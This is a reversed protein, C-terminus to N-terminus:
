RALCPLDKKIQPIQDLSTEPSDVWWWIHETPYRGDAGKAESSEVTDLRTDPPDFRLKVSVGTRSSGYVLTKSISDQIAQQPTGCLRILSDSSLNLLVDREYKAADIAAQMLKRQARDPEETLKCSLAPNGAGTKYCDWLSYDSPSSSFTTIYTEAEGINPHREIFGRHRELFHVISVSLDTLVAQRSLPKKEKDVWKDFAYGDFKRTPAPICYVNEEAYWCELHQGVSWSFNDWFGFSDDSWKAALVRVTKRTSCGSCLIALAVMLLSAATRNM